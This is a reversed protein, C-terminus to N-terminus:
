FRLLDIIVVLVDTHRNLVNNSNDQQNLVQYTSEQYFTSLYETINAAVKDNINTQDDLKKLQAKIFTTMRTKYHRGAQGTMFKKHIAFITVVIIVFSPTAHMYCYM